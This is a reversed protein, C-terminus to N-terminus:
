PCGGDDTFVAQMFLNVVTEQSECQQHNSDVDFLLICVKGMGKDANDGDRRGRVRGAGPGGGEYVM